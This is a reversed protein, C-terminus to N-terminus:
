RHLPLGGMRWCVVCDMRRFAGVHVSCTQLVAGFGVGLKEGDFVVLADNLKVAKRDPTRGNVM